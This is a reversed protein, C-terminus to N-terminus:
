RDAELPLLDHSLGLPDHALALLESREPTPLAGIRRLALDQLARLTRDDLIGRAAGAARLWATIAGPTHAARATDVLAARLREAVRHGEHESAELLTDTDGRGIAEVLGGGAALARLSAPSPAGLVEDLRLRAAAANALRRDAMDRAARIHDADLSAIDPHPDWRRAPSASEVGAATVTGDPALSRRIRCPDGFPPTIRVTGAEQSPEVRWGRFTTHLAGARQLPLTHGAIRVADFVRPEVEDRLLEAGSPGREGGPRPNAHAQALDARLRDLWPGSGHLRAALTAAHWAHALDQVPEIRSLDDFFWGCSAYMLQRQHQVEMWGAVRRRARTPVGHRQLVEDPGDHLADIWHDRLGWADDVWAEVDQVFAEDLADRLRDLAHRLPGRWAGGGPATGCGCDSRWREIGHACSWSSDEVIRAEREVPHADLWAAYPTLEVDTERELRHLAWALAMEGRAHHHGYSEGDTALHALGDTDAAARLREFLRDGSDLIRGFAIDHALSGDYVFVVISRGSPLDVRHPHRVDVEGHWAGGPRRTQAIQDPAVITFQVGHEAFCELTATDIACEPAWLGESRRGFRQEFDRLAWRVQTRLDRASALPLIMHNYAQAMATGRGFRAVAARDGRVMAEHVEPAEEMLWRLLTPGIDFSVRSYLDVVGRLRGDSDEIRAAGCPRYCEDTIRANWDHHPAASPQVPVRGVWPNDRPPQYYHGHICIRGLAGGLPDPSDITGTISSTSWTIHENAGLREDM